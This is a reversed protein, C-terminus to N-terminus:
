SKKETKELVIKPRPRTFIWVVVALLAILLPTLLCWEGLYYAGGLSVLFGSTITWWKAYYRKSVNEPNDKYLVNELVNGLIYLVILILLLEYFCRIFEGLTDPWSFLAAALTEPIDTKQGKDSTTGGGGGSGIVPISSLTSTGMGEKFGGYEKGLVEPKIDKIVKAPQVHPITSGCLIQNIKGLTTIYVYGTPQSIGWPALIEDKYRLQFEMVAQQTAEDFVGTVNVYDFKEFVKLFAQLRIVQMTDNNLGIRMYSSLYPCFNATTVGLVEGSTTTPPRSSGGSRGSTSSPPSSSGGGGGGGGGASNVTIILTDTDSGCSNAASISINFTGTETPTGSITATSANFSLGSPLAGSISFTTTTSTVGTTTATITYSFSQNVTVSSTLSSTIQPLPCAPPSPPAAAAVVNIVVIDTDSTVGDTCDLTLTTSSGVTPYWPHSSAIPGDTGSLTVGSVGSPSTLQCATANTSSWSYNWSDGNVVTVPGDSGNAKIDAIVAPPTAALAITVSDSISTVGNTCDLMLTTSSTATPYWPHSSAIPGDTGSLTVGSVGSPSSLECATANSSTWSYNWSAGSAITVVPGDSGEAKIDATPAAPPPPPAPPVAVINITVSDSTSEAGDTCDLTLTVSSGVDPYWPHDSAIPGDSGSLSVGSAGSPTTMQCATADSSTWTFSFSNGDVVDVPGDSGEAKIDVVPAAFVENLPIGAFFVAFALYIAGAQM